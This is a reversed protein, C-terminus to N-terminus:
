CTVWAIADGSSKLYMPMLDEHCRERHGTFYVDDSGTLGAPQTPLSCGM